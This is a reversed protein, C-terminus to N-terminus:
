VEDHLEHTIKSIPLLLIVKGAGKWDSSTEM